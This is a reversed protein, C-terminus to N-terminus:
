KVYQSLNAYPNNITEKFLWIFPDSTIVSYKLCDLRVDVYLFFSTINYKFSKGSSFCIEYLYTIM